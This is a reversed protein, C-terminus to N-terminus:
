ATEGTRAPAEIKPTWGTAKSVEGWSASDPDDIRRLGHGQSALPKGNVAEDLELWRGDHADRCGTISCTLGLWEPKTNWGDRNTSVVIVSDGIRLPKGDRDEAIVGTLRDYLKWLMSM